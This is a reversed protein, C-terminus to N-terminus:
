SATELIRAINESATQLMQIRQKFLLELINLHTKEGKTLQSDSYLKSKFNTFNFLRAREILKSIFLKTQKKQAEKLERYYSLYFDNIIGQSIEEIDALTRERVKIKSLDILGADPNSTAVIKGKGDQGKLLTISGINRNRTDSLLDSIMLGFVDTPSATSISSQRDISYGPLINDASQVLYKRKDGQGIFLVDPSALQMHEQISSAYREALHEFNFSSSKMIFKNTNPLVVLSQTDNIKSIKVGSMRALVEQLISPAIDSLTGNNKLHEIAGEVSSINKGAANSNEKPKEAEESVSIKRNKNFVVTAWRQKGNDLIKNPNKIGSFNESYGIGDGTETAVYKLRAAPDKEISIEAASNVTRGLKRREGITLLRKKELTLVSGGPLVYKLSQIGTNSLLGLEEGGIQDPSLYNALYTAGEMDRNDPITRLVAPSVVPELVFGDRRVMRAASLKSVGLPTVLKEVELELKKPNPLSVKPIQPARSNIVGETYNGAGLPTSNSTMPKNVFRDLKRIAAITSGLIGPLAFLKKGCTSFQNDTFRGGYQYGEPCRSQGDGINAIRRVSGLGPIRPKGPTLAGYISSRVPSRYKSIDGPTLYSGLAQVGQLIPSNSGITGVRKVNYNRESTGRKILAKFSIIQQNNAGFGRLVNTPSNEQSNFVIRLKTIKSEPCCSSPITLRKIERINLSKNFM